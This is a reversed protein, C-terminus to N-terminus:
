MPMKVGTYCHHFYDGEVTISQSAGDSNIHVDLFEMNLTIRRNEDAACRKVVMDFHQSTAGHAPIDLLRINENTVVDDLYEPHTTYLYTENFLYAIYKLEVDPYTTTVFVSLEDEQPGYETVNFTLSSPSASFLHVVVSLLFASCTIVNQLTEIEDLM